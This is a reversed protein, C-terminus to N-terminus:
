IRDFSGSGGDQWDSPYEVSFGNTYDYHTSYGIPGATTSNSIEDQQNTVTSASTLNRLEVIDAKCVKKLDMGVDNYMDKLLDAVAGNTCKKYYEKEGLVQFEQIDKESQISWANSISIRSHSVLLM